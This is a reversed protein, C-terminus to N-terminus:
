PRGGSKRTSWDVLEFRVAKRLFKRSAHTVILNGAPCRICFYLYYYQRRMKVGSGSNKLNALELLWEEYELKEQVIRTMACIALTTNLGEIM